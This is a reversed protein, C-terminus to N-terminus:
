RGALKGAMGLIDDLPNGDGDRDLLAGLGGLGTSSAGPQASASGLMSGLLDGLGGSAGGSSRAMHGAALMAVIPLLKKLTGSDLGTQGAAYDAVARSVDKPGFIQGLIDNGAAVNTPESGLVNSILGGGGASQVTSVLGGLGADGGEVTKKFGGLVAPLLAEIGSGAQEESIGLQGAIAGLGGTPAIIQQLDM